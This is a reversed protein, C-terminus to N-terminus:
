SAWRRAEVREWTKPQEFLFGKVVGVGAALNVLCFYMPFTLWAAKSKLVYALIAYGYFLLQLILAVRFIPVDMLIISSLFVNGMLFPTLWRLIKHSVLQFLLFPQSLKPWFDLNLFSKVGLSTVRIKRFFESKLTGESSESGQAEEDFVVRMGRLAVRFGIYFDDNVFYGLHKPFCDRRIAYMAGDVGIQTHIVSELSHMNWEYRYYWRESKGHLTESSVLTVKGSVAGISDDAFNRVLKEIANKQLFTNADSFVIIESSIEAGIKEIVAAKGSREPFCATCIEDQYEGLIENTRDTSGDSCVLISLQSKPYELALCNEIKQRLVNEENYAVVLLTVSPTISSRVWPKKIIGAILFLSLPYGVYVHFLLVISILFIWIPFNWIALVIFSGISFFLLKGTPSKSEVSVNRGSARIPDWMIISQGMFSKSVGVISSVNIVVFYACASLFWHAHSVHKVKWALLGLGYVVVQCVVVLSFVSLSFSLVLSSFFM